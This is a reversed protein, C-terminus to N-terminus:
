EEVNGLERVISAQEMSGGPALKKQIRLADLFHQRAADYNELTVESSGSTHLSEVVISSDPALRQGIEAAREAYDRAVSCYRSDTYLMGRDLAVKAFANLTEVLKL